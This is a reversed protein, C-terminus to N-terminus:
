NLSWLLHLTCYAFVNIIEEYEGVLFDVIPTDGVNLHKYQIGKNTELIVWSIYHIDLMPHEEKGITITVFNGIKRVQILHNDIEELFTNTKLEEIENKCCSMKSKNNFINISIENCNNCRYFNM